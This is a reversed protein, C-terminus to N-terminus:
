EAWDAKVVSVLFEADDRPEADRFESSYSPLLSWTQTEGPELGGPIEYNVDGEVWPLARGSTQLVGHLYVSGISKSAGNRITLDMANSTRVSGESRRFKASVVIIKQLEPDPKVPEPEAPRILANHRDGNRGGVEESFARGIGSLASLMQSKLHERGVFYGVVLSVCATAVLPWYSRLRVVSRPSRGARKPEAAPEVVQVFPPPLSPSSAVATFAIGAGCGPCKGSRGAWDDGAKVVKGCGPCTCRIPM